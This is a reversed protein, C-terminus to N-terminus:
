KAAARKVIARIRKFLQEAEENGKIERHVAALGADIKSELSDRYKQKVFALNEEKLRQDRMAIFYAPDAAKIARKTMIFQGVKLLADLEIDIAPNEKLFDAMEEKLSSAENLEKGVPYWVWWYHLSSEEPEFGFEKKCFPIAETYGNGEQQLFNWLLLQKSPHLTKLRSDKRPKRHRKM